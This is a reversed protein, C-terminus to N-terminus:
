SAALANFGGIMYGDARLLATVGQAYDLWGRGPAEDGLHYAAEETGAATSILRVTQDDRPALMVRTRRAILVPLVFGGNYDTHEGILNVRGHAESDITPRDGFFARRQAEVTERTTASAM